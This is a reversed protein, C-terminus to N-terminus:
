NGKRIQEVILGIIVAPVLLLGVILVWGLVQTCWCMPPLDMLVYNWVQRSRQSARRGTFCAEGLLWTRNRPAASHSRRLM